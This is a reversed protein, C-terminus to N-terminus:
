SFHFCELSMGFFLSQKSYDIRKLSGLHVTLLALFSVTIWNKVFCDIWLDLTPGPFDFVQKSYKLRFM